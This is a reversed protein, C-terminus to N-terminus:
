SKSARSDAISVHPALIAALLGVGGALIYPAEPKWDFLVGGLIPGVLFGISRTGQLLGFLEGQRDAPALESCAANVTPNSLSIGLSYLGSFAFLVALGPAFPTLLLGLGQLIYGLRLTAARGLRKIVWALLVGQVVVGVLSEFSFIAGFEAQHYNLKHEILRGFTGELCALAFWSVSALVFFARLSPLDRLLRLDILPHKGPEQPHRPAQGRLFLLVILAGVGSFAAATTGLLRNGGVAALYGGLAPGSILGGSIAAGIRGMAASRDAESTIDALYAQAVVVNAAALGGLIRSALILRVDTAHAYVLMSLASLGTCVVIVPKRGIRDSLRGWWPSAIFQVAFLSALLAGILWGRAGYSEARLQVDPFAMGFGVLDLFIAALLPAETRKVSGSM